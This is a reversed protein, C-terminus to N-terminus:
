AHRVADLHAARADLGRTTITDVGPLAGFSGEIADLDAVLEAHGTSLERDVIRRVLAARSIGEARALRDLGASQADELYLNTRNM